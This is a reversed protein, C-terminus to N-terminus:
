RSPGSPSGRGAKPDPAMDAVHRSTPPQPGPSPLDHQYRSEPPSRQGVKSDSEHGPARPKGRSVEAQQPNQGLLASAGAGSPSLKELRAKMAEIHEGKIGEQRGRAEDLRAKLNPDLRVADASELKKLHADAEELLRQCENFYPAASRPSGEADGLNKGADAHLKEVLQLTVRAIEASARQPKAAVAVENLRAQNRELVVQRAQLVRTEEPSSPGKKLHDLTFKALGATKKLKSEQEETLEHPKVVFNALQINLTEEYAGLLKFNAQRREAEPSMPEPKAHAPAAKAEAAQKLKDVGDAIARMRQRNAQLTDVKEALALSQDRPLEFCLKQVKDLLDNVDQKMNQYQDFHKELYALKMDINEELGKMYALTAQIKDHHVSASAQSSPAAGAGSADPRPSAAEAPVQEAPEPLKANKEAFAQEYEDLWQKGHQVFDQLYMFGPPDTAEDRHNIYLKFRSLMSNNDLLFQKYEQLQAPSGLRKKADFVREFDAQQKQHEERLEKILRAINQQDTAIDSSTELGALLRDLQEFRTESDAGWARLDGLLGQADELHGRYEQIDRYVSHNFLYGDIIEDGDRDLSFDEGRRYGGDGPGKYIKRHGQGM